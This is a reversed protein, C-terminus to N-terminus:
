VDETHLYLWILDRASQTIQDIAGIFAELQPEDISLQHTLLRRSRRELVLLAVQNPPMSRDPMWDLQHALTKSHRLGDHLGLLAGAEVKRVREIGCPVSTIAARMQKYDRKPIEARASEVDALTPFGLDRLLADNSRGETLAKFVGVSSPSLEFELFTRVVPTAQRNRLAIYLAVLEQSANLYEEVIRMGMVKRDDPDATVLGRMLAEAVTRHAKAGFRAYQELFPVELDDLYTQFCTDCLATREHLGDLDFGTGCQECNALSAPISTDTRRLSSDVM